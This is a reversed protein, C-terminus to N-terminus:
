QGPVPDNQLVPPNIQLACLSILLPTIFTRTASHFTTLVALTFLTLKISKALSDPERLCSWGFMLIFVFILLGPIGQEALLRSLEVHAAIGKGEVRMHKSAGVGSGLIPYEKWLELDDFFILTRNSTWTDLDKEKTGLLTGYTEGQYRLFLNGETKVNVYVITIFVFAILPIAMRRMDAMIRAHALGGRLVMLLFIIFAFGSSVMGGRSFTLLGQVLFALAIFGDSLRGGSFKWNMTYSMAYLISGLGLVTSVQNSGFEGSTSLKATLTFEIEHFDPTKVVTYALACLCPLAVLRLMDILEEQKIRLTGFFLIGMGINVVGLVNFIIEQADVVGSKDILMGPIALLLVVIAYTRGFGPGHSLMYGIVCLVLFLYKSAEWPIVPSSSTMRALLEFGGLYAMTSALILPRNLNSFSLLYFTGALTLYFWVIVPINGTTVFAGFALHFMTWWKNTTSNALNSIM